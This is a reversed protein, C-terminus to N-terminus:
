AIHELLLPKDLMKGEHFCKASGSDRAYTISGALVYSLALPYILHEKLLVRAALTEVTDDPDIAVRAQLIVPGGDLESTVFHVSAGAFNDGAAIANAHTNLGPHRPLLSPHINLIKGEFRSVFAAGLIRMFGALLILDCRPALWDALSQDFNDRDDFTRHDIVHTEINQSRAFDLGAADPNNSAVLTVKAQTCAPDQNVSEVLSRMNSGTGSILIAIRTM